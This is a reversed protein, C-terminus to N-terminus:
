LSVDVPQGPRLADSNLQAEVMFVLRERETNSYLVPPAYEPDQAIYSITGNVQQGADNTVTIAQGVKLQSLRSQKVFFRVKSQGSLILSLIPVGPTVFEGQRYYVEDVQGAQRSWLRRQDVQWQRLNLAQVLADVQQQAAAIQHERAPLELVALQQKLQSVKAGLADYNASARDVSAQSTAQQDLMEQQRQLENHAEQRLVQQEQLQLRAVEIEEKRSGQQLDALQQEAQSLQAQAQKLSIQQAQDDLKIIQESAKVLTGESVLIHEIWGSQPAVIYYHIAEIYGTYQNDGAKPEQACAGLLWCSCLVAIQIGYKM